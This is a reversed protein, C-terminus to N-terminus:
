KREFAAVKIQEVTEYEKMFAEAADHLQQVEQVTLLDSINYVGGVSTAM